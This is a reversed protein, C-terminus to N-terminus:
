VVECGWLSLRGSKFFDPSSLIQDGVERLIQNTKYFFSLSFVRTRGAGNLPAPVGPLRVCSREGGLTAAGATRPSRSSGDSSSSISCPPQMRIVHQVVLHRFLVVM